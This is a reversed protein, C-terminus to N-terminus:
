ILIFSPAKHDIIVCGTKQEIIVFNLYDSQTGNLHQNSEGTQFSKNLGDRFELGCKLTPKGQFVYKHVERKKATFSICSLEIRYKPTNIKGM